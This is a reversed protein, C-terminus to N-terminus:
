FGNKADFATLQESLKDHLAEWKKISSQCINRRTETTLPDAIEQRLDNVIHTTSLMLDCVELRSVKLTVTRSNYSM